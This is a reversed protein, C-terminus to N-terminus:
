ELDDAGLPEFARWTRRSVSRQSRLLSRVHVNEKKRTHSISPRSGTAMRRVRRSRRSLWNACAALGIGAPKVLSISYPAATPQDSQLAVWSRAAGPGVPVELPERRPARPPAAGRAGRRHAADAPVTLQLRP